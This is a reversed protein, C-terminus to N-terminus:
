WNQANFYDLNTPYGHQAPDPKFYTKPAGTSDMVGFINRTPDYVVVDGNTRTIPPLATSPPRRLFQQAEAVYEAAKNLHPFDARHDNFHRLANQPSTKSKTSSWLPGSIRDSTNAAVRGRDLACLDRDALRAQGGTTTTAAADGALAAPTTCTTTPPTNPRDPCASADRLWCNAADYATSQDYTAPPGRESTTYIAPSTCSQGDYAYIVSSTSSTAVTETGQGIGIWVLATAMAAVFLRIMVQLVLTM